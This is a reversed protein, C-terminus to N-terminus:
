FERPSYEVKSSDGAVEVEDLADIGYKLLGYARFRKSAEEFDDVLDGGSAAGGRSVTENAEYKGNLALQNMVTDFRSKLRDREGKDGENYSWDEVENRARNLAWLQQQFDVVKEFRNKLERNEYDKWEMTAAKAYRMEETELSYHWIRQEGDGFHSGDNRMFIEGDFAAALFYKEETGANNELTVHGNSGTGIRDVGGHTDTVVTFDNELDEMGPLSDLDLEDNNVLEYEAGDETEEQFEYRLEQESITREEVEGELLSKIESQLKEKSDPKKEEELQPIISRETQVSLLDM